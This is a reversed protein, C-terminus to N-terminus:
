IVVIYIVKICYKYRHDGIMVEEGISNGAGVTTVIKKITAYEQKDNTKEKALPIDLTKELVCFGELIFYVNRGVEGEDGLLTDRPYVYSRLTYFLEDWIEPSNIKDLYPINKKMFEQKESRTKDYKNITNLYDDKNLVLFETIENTM